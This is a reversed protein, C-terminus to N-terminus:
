GRSARIDTIQEGIVGAATQEDCGWVLMAAHILMQGMGANVNRARDIAVPDPWTPANDNQEYFAIMANVLKSADMVKGMEVMEVMELITPGGNPPLFAFSGRM